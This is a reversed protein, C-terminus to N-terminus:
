QSGECSGQSRDARNGDNRWDNWWDADDAHMLEECKAIACLSKVHIYIGAAALGGVIMILQKM